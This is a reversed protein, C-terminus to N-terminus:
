MVEHHDDGVPDYVLFVAPRIRKKM